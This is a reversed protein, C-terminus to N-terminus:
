LYRSMARGLTPAIRSLRHGTAAAAHEALRQPDHDRSVDRQRKRLGRREGRSLRLAADPRVTAPGPEMVAEVPQTPDSEWAQNRLLGIVLRDCDLVICQHWGAAFTRRRVEGIAENPTSTPIDARIADGVKQVLSGRGEVPLGAAKWDAIGGVYDYVTEFGFREFRCAARPSM